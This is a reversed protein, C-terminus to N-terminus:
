KMDKGVEATREADMWETVQIGYVTYRRVMRRGDTTPKFQAAEIIADAIRRGARSLPTEPIPVQTRTGPAPSLAEKSTRPANL